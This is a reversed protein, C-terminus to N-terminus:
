ANGAEEQEADASASQRWIRRRHWSPGGFLYAESALRRMYLHQDHEWTFGIGGFVQFCTHTLQVANESVFARAISAMAPGDAAGSGLAEAAGAVVAKAMELALSTRALLHKLGQFSGIPRGFATRTKAYDLALAFNADMAGASEAASLVAAVALQWDALAAGGATPGALVAGAPVRVRDFVLNFHRRTLDLGAAKELSLGAADRNVLFHRVLGGDAADASHGGHGGDRASVLIWGCEDADQVSRLVGSVVIGGPTDTVALEPAASGPVPGNALAADSLVGSTAWTAAADGVQLAALVDAQLSPGGAQRSGSLGGAGSLCWALSAIAIQTGVFPGPQLRAGREAAIMAADSIGNGSLTGGGHEEGALFQFCGLGGLARWIKEDGSESREASERVSTLPYGAEMARVAADAMMRQEETADPFLGVSM